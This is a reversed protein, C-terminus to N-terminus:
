ASSSPARPEGQALRVMVAALVHVALWADSRTVEGDRHFHANGHDSRDANAWDIYPKFLMRDARTIVRHTQAFNLQDSLSNGTVGLARFYEQVSAAAKTVADAPRNEGLADLAAQFSRSATAFRADHLMITMAPEVVDSHLVSNGRPILRDGGFEWNVREMLLVDNVATAYADSDYEPSAWYGSDLSIQERQDTRLIRLAYYIAAIVDLRDYDEGHGLLSSLSDPDVIGTANNAARLSDVLEYVRRSDNTVFPLLGVVKRGV